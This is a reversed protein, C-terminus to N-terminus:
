RDLEIRELAMQRPTDEARVNRRLEQLAVSHPSQLHGKDSKAGNGYPLMSQEPHACLEPDVVPTKKGPPWLPHTAVERCNLRKNWIVRFIPDKLILPNSTTEGKNQIMKATSLTQKAIDVELRNEGYLLMQNELFKKM